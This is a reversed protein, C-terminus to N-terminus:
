NKEPASKNSSKMLKSLDYTHNLHHSPLVSNCDVLRCERTKYFTLHFLRTLWQQSMLLPRRNNLSGCQKGQFYTGTKWVESEYEFLIKRQIALM